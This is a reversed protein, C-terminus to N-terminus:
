AFYGKGLAGQAAGHEPPRGKSFYSAQQPIAGGTVPDLLRGSPFLIAAGYRMADGIDSDPHTKKPQSSVLGTRAVNYHWGGRLAFWVHRASQRDVQILGTGGLTRSLAWQIADRGETFAVPGPRWTGGLTKRIHKVVSRASSTQERQKGAPDGIHSM